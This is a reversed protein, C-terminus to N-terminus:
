MVPDPYRYINGEFNRLLLNENERGAFSHPILPIKGGGGPADIVYHPVAYGSTFGRLGAIIELGKDVTTRFHATGAVPDCQYLYYPKVRNKLLGHYLSKMTEVNDNVGKLLVTQSGLPIGANALRTCAEAVEPTLEDPHTFHISMWLPHYKKLVRLLGSNIRQPLVAPVKTGIRIIEVHSIARLRSLLWELKEDSLTLPDGGSLLVDRIEPHERIYALAGEWQNLNFKYEGGKNGVMRSRTCYRCYVSCFGTVLFLVRDPYRHVLGPVPSDADEHLPDESEGQTLRNEETVKIVTRRIPQDPNEADILSAYYPTVSAPLPGRHSSIAELESQSLKVIRQLGALDKIRNQLQWYWSNWQVDTVEPYYTKRFAETKPGLVYQKAVAALTKKKYESLNTDPSHEIVAPLPSDPAASDLQVAVADM